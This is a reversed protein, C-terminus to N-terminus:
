QWWCQECPSAILRLENWALLHAQGFGQDKWVLWLCALLVRGVMVSFGVARVGVLLGSPFEMSMCTRQPLSLYLAM